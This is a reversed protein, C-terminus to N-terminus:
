KALFGPPLFTEKLTILFIHGTIVRQGNLWATAVHELECYFDNNGSEERVAYVLEKAWKWRTEITDRILDYCVSEDIVHNKIAVCILELVNFYNQVIVKNKYDNEDTPSLIKMLLGDRHIKRFLRGNELFDEDTRLKMLIDVAARQKAMIRNLVVGVIAVLAGLTASLLIATSTEM